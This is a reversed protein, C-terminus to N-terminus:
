RKVKGLQILVNKVDNVSKFSGGKAKKYLQRYLHSDIVGNAKLTRLYLRIKRITNVWKTHSDFRAGKKGKRSGYRRGEGKIRRNKRREKVRGRSVRKGKEIIIKGEKILKSIDQTTLAERIEDLFENPLKVNNIGVGKVKAALRKQLYLEPM